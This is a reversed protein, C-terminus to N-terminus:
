RARWAAPTRTGGGTARRRGRSRPCGSCSAGHATRRPCWAGGHAAVPSWARCERSRRVSCGQSLGSAARRHLGKAGDDHVASTDVPRSTSRAHPESREVPLHCLDGGRATIGRRAREGVDERAVRRQGVGEERRREEQEEEQDGGGERQREPEAR